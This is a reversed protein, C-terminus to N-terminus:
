KIKDELEEQETEKLLRKRNSIAMLTFLFFLCAYVFIIGAVGVIIWLFIGDIIDFFLMCMGVVSFIMLIVCWVICTYLGGLRKECIRKYWSEKLTVM